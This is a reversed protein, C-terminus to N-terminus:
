VDVNERVVSAERSRAAIMSDSTDNIKGTIWARLM